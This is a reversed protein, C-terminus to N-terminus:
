FGTGDLVWLLRCARDQGQSGARRNCRANPVPKSVLSELTRLIPMPCSPNESQCHVAWSVHFAGGDWFMQSFELGFGCFKPATVGGGNEGRGKPETQAKRKCFCHTEASPLRQLATEDSDALIISRKGPFIRPHFANCRTESALKGPFRLMYLRAEESSVRQLAERRCFCMTEASPLRQM